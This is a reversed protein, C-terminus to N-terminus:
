LVRQYYLVDQPVLTGLDLLHSLLVLFCQDGLLELLWPVVLSGLDQHHSLVDQPELHSLVSPLDPDELHLPVGPHVLHWLYYLYGQLM